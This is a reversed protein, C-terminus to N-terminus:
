NSSLTVGLAVSVSESASDDDAYSYSIDVFQNGGDPGKLNSLGQYRLLRQSAYDYSLMIPDAFFSILRSRVGVEICLVTSGPDSECKGAEVVQANMRIPSNRGAVLFPFTISEGDALNDWSQRVFNDFGADVVLKDDLSVSRPRGGNATVTLTDDRYEIRQESNNRQDRLHLSPAIASPSYDLDKTAIESGDAAVYEVTWHDDDVQIYTETYLLDGNNLDYAEGVVDKAHLGAPGLLSFMAVAALGLQPYRRPKNM